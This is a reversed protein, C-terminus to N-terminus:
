KLDDFYKKMENNDQFDINLINNMSIYATAKIKKIKRGFGLFGKKDILEITIDKQVGKPIINNMIGDLGKMANEIAHNANSLADNIKNDEM